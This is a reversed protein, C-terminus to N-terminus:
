LILSFFSSSSPSLFCVPNHLVLKKLEEVEPILTASMMFTQFITPCYSLITKVDDFYGYTMLLDAEDLVLVRLTDRLTINQTKSDTKSNSQNVSSHCLFLFLFFSFLPILGERIFTSRTSRANCRTRKAVRWAEEQTQKNNDTTLKVSQLLLFLFNFLSVSKQILMQEDRTLVLPNVLSSCYRSLQIVTDRVQKCLESTPVLILARVGIVEESADKTILNNLIPIVYAATKGSGLHKHTLSFITQSLSNSLNLGTRARALIDKGELALPIAAAQVLTPNRYFCKDIAQSFHTLQLFSFFQSSKNNSM